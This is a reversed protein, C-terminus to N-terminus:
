FPRSLRGVGELLRASAKFAARNEQTSAGNPEVQRLLQLAHPWQQGCADILTNHSMLTLKLGSEQAARFLDLADDWLSSGGCAKIAATTTVLNSELQQRRMSALLELAEPGSCSSM